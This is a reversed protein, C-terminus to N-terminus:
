VRTLTFAVRFAYPAKGPVDSLCPVVLPLDIKFGHNNFMRRYAALAEDTSPRADGYFQTRADMWTKYDYEKYTDYGHEGVQTADYPDTNVYLVVVSREALVNMSAKIFQFHEVMPVGRYDAHLGQPTDIVLLNIPETYMCNALSQYSCGIQVDACGLDKLAQEHEAGLEWATVKTDKWGVYQSVTLQGNRAFADLANIPQDGWFLERLRHLADFLVAASSVDAQTANVTKVQM